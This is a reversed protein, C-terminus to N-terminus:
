RSLAVLKRSTRGSKFLVSTGAPPSDTALFPVYGNRVTEAAVDALKRDRPYLCPRETAFMLMQPEGSDRGDFLIVANAPLHATVFQAMGSVDPVKRNWGAVRWADVFNMAVLISTAIAALVKLRRGSHAIGASRARNLATAVLSGLLIAVLFHGMVWPSRMPLTWLSAGEIPGKGFPLISAPWAVSVVAIAFWASLPKRARAFDFDLGADILLALLICAPPVALLTASPTKTGAAVMPAVVGCFWAYVLIWGINGSRLARPLLAAFAVLIPTYLYRHMYPMYDFVVRTWPGGWGELPSNLHSWIYGHEHAFEVPFARTCYLTWPAATALTTLGLVILPGIEIAGEPKEASGFRRRLRDAVLCAVATAGVILGPYSKSLVACGQAFGAACAWRYSGREGSRVTCYIGAEVWFLLSVDIHDSFLYGQVLMLILPNVAQFSAALLGVRRSFLRSGILFTFGTSATALIASPLRLALTNVGFLVFSVAIQWLPLIPKHLWVHNEGWNRADFGVPPPDFLTPKLPHRLLSRAVIAHFSEDWYNLTPHGLNRTNLIFSLLLLCTLATQHRRRARHSTKTQDVDDVAVRPRVTPGFLLRHPPTTRDSLTAPARTM